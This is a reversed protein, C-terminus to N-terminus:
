HSCSTTSAATRNNHGPPEASATIFDVNGTQLAYKHNHAEIEVAPYDEGLYQMLSTMCSPFPFSEPTRKDRTRGDFGVKVVDLIRKNSVHTVEKVQVQEFV